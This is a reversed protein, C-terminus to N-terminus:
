ITFAVPMREQYHAAQEDVDCINCILVHNGAVLDLTVSQTDGVAIDEIEGQLELGEGEEDFRAM